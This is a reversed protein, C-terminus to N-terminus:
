SKSLKKSMKLVRVPYYLLIYGAIIILFPYAVGWVTKYWLEENGFIKYFYHSLMLLIFMISSIISVYILKFGDALFLIM